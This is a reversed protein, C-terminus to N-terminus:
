LYVYIDVDMSLYLSLYLYTPISISIKGGTETEKLVRTCDSRSLFDVDGPGPACVM